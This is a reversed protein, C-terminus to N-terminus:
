SHRNEVVSDLSESYFEVLRGVAEDSDADLVVNTDLVWTVGLRDLHEAM